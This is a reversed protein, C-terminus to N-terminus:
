STGASTRFLVTKMSSDRSSLGYLHAQDFHQSQITVAKGIEWRPDASTRKSSDSWFNSLPMLGYTARAQDCLSNVANNEGVALFMRCNTPRRNYITCHVSRGIEGSLAQCRIPRKETGSMAWRTGDLKFILYSPIGGGPFTDAEHYDFTVRYIACCAGCRMCPNQQSM